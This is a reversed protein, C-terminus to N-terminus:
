PKSQAPPNTGNPSSQPRGVIVGPLPSPSRSPQKRLDNECVPLAPIVPMNSLAAKPIQLAIAQDVSSSAEYVLLHGCSNNAALPDSPTFFFHPTQLNKQVPRSVFPEIFRPFNRIADIPNQTQASLALPVIPNAQAACNSALGLCFSFVSLASVLAVRM